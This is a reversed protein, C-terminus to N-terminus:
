QLDIIIQEIIRNIGKGDVIKLCNKSMAELYYSRKKLEVLSSSLQDKINTTSKLNIACGMNEWAKANIEQNDAIPVLLMPLGLYAAEYSIMGSAIIGLDAEKMNEHLQDQNIIKILGRKELNEINKKDKNYPSIVVDIDIKSFEVFDINQLCKLTAGHDDGGGFCVVIKKLRKRVSRKDKMETIQEKVICYDPGLLFKTKPNRRLPEYLDIKAGPSGHLVWNAYFGCKAHSDFQLWSVKNDFLFRQYNENAEYHDIILLDGTCYKEVIFNLETKTPFNVNIFIIDPQGVLNKKIYSAVLRQNDTRIYFIYNSISINNVLSICRSLHGLGYTNGANIRVIIKKESM